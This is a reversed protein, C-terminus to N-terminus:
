NAIGHGIVIGPRQNTASVGAPKYLLGQLMLNGDQIGVYSTEITLFNTNEMYALTLFSLFLILVIILPRQTKLKSNFMCRM